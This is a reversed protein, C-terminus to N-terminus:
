AARALEATERITLENGQLGVRVVIFELPLAPAIGILAVLRGNDRDAATTTEEDCRVFFAEEASAGAFAGRQWLSALFNGLVAAYSARTAPNNPEFVVWQSLLHVARRILQVLRRVNVFRAAPDSSLTRAGMVRLGRQSESRLANASIDNLYEQEAFTTHLTLDQIWGLRDNAPARHAGSAIDHAAYRGLVHGSPPIARLRDPHRPDAVKVWPFYLAGAASDFRSRWMVIGAMRREDGRVTNWPPDLVAFRDGRAECHTLLASQVHQIQEDTFAPPLEEDNTATAVPRRPEFPPPCPDCPDRPPLPDPEILPDPQARIVIDPVAVLAIEDVLDLTRLGREKAAAESDDDRSSFAAGTFDGTALAALGDTGGTLDLLEGPGTVLPPPAALAPPALDRIIVPPAIAAPLGQQWTAAYDPQALVRPGYSPHEPIQSLAEAQALLRGGRLVILGLSVSTLRAPLAPDLALSQYPYPFDPGGAFSVTGGAPDIGAVVAHRPPLGPQTIEVLDFRALGATRAVALLTTTSRALDIATEVRKERRLRVALEDGWRGPSSAEIRWGSAPSGIEVAAARAGRDPRRSAVRVIWCRVGGNEFFAKVSWALYRAGSFGGFHSQFQRFSEVPVPTDLPGQRALGVFCAIDTRIVAPGARARDVREYYAGPRHYRM